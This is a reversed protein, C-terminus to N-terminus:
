RGKRKEKFNKFDIELHVRVPERYRAAEDMSLALAASLRRNEELLEENQKELKTWRDFM